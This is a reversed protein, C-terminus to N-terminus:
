PYYNLKIHDRMNVLNDSQHMKKHSVIYGHKFTYVYLTYILKGDHENINFSYSDGWRLLCLSQIDAILELETM